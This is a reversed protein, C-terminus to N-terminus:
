EYSETFWKLNHEIVTRVSRDRLWTRETHQTKTYLVQEGDAIYIATRDGDEMTVKISM